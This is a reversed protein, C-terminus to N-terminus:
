QCLLSLPIINVEFNGTKVTRWRRRKRERGGMPLCDKGRGSARTQASKEFARNLCTGKRRLEIGQRGIREREKKKEEGLGLRAGRKKQEKSLWFDKGSKLGKVLDYLPRQEWKEQVDGGKSSAWYPDGGGIKVRFCCLGIVFGSIGIPSVSEKEGKRKNEGEKEEGKRRLTSNTGETIALLAHDGLNRSCKKRSRMGPKKKREPPSEKEKGGGLL